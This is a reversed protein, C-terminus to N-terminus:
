MNNFIPLVSSRVHVQQRHITQNGQAQLHKHLLDVLVDNEVDEWSNTQLNKLNIPKWRM